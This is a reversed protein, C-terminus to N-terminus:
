HWWIHHTVQSGWHRGDPSAASILLLIETRRERHSRRLQLQEQCWLLMDTWKWLCRNRVAWGFNHIDWCHCRRQIFHRTRQNVWSNIAFTCSWSHGLLGQYEGQQRWHGADATSSLSKHLNTEPESDSQGDTEKLIDFLQRLVESCRYIFFGMQRWLTELCLCEHRWCLHHFYRSATFQRPCEAQQHSIEYGM